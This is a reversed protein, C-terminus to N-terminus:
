AKEGGGFPNNQLINAAEVNAMMRNGLLKNKMNFEPDMLQICKMKAVNFIEIQKLIQLDTITM